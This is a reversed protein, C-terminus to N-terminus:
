MTKGQPADSARNSPSSVSEPSIPTGIVEPPKPPVWGAPPVWSAPPVWGPPPVWGAPPAWGQPPAVAAPQHYAQSGAPPAATQAVAEPAKSGPDPLVAQEAVDSMGRKFETISRGLSRMVEPLRKGFILLAIILIVLSDMGWLNNLFALM